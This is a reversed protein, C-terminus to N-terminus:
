QNLRGVTSIRSLEVTGTTILAVKHLGTISERYTGSLWQIGYGGYVALGDDTPGFSITLTRTIEFGYDPNDPNTNRHDPHYKHRFPNTPHLRPLVITGSVARAPGVGGQLALENGVFDYAPASIRRPRGNGALTLNPLRTADTVLAVHSDAAGGPDQGVPTLATSDVGADEPLPEETSAGTAQLVIVDKLLRVRGTADVHLLITFAMTDATPTIQGPSTSSATQVENVANLVVKGVWLGRSSTSRSLDLNDDGGGNDWFDGDWNLDYLGPVYARVGMVGAGMTASQGNGSDDFVELYNVESDYQGLAEPDFHNFSWYAALGAGGRFLQRLATQAIEAPTRAVTWVRVEDLKGKYHHRAPSATTGLGQRGTYLPGSAAAGLDVAPHFTEVAIGHHYFVVENAAELVTVALHQWIGDAVQAAPAVARAAPVGGLLLVPFGDADLALGWGNEEKMVVTRRREAQGPDVATVAEPCVWAEITLAAPAATNNEFVLDALRMGRCLTATAFPPPDGAPTLSVGVALTVAMPEVDAVEYEGNNAGADRVVILDGPQLGLPTFSGSLSVIRDLGPTNDEFILTDRVLRNWTLLASAPAVETGEATLTALPDVAPDSPRVVLREPRVVEIQVTRNNAGTESVTIQQGSALRLDSLAASLSRIADAKPNFVLSDATELYDDVGDFQLAWMGDRNPPQPGYIWEPLDPSAVTGHLTGTLDNGSNDAATHGIGDNLSWYGLLGSMGEPLQRNAFAYIEDSDRAYSWLRVEDLDGAYWGGATLAGRRGFVLGHHATDATVIAAEHDGAPAGNIFFAATNTAPDVLLAVHQWVNAALPRDSALAAAPDSDSIWYRLYGAADVALGWGADGQRLLTQFPNTSDPASGAFPGAPRLWLELTFALPQGSGDHREFYGNQGAPPDVSVWDGDGDFRLAYQPPLPEGFELPSDVRAWAPLDILLGDAKLHCPLLDRLRQLVINDFLHYPPAQRWRLETIANFRRFEFTQPVTSGGDLEYTQELPVGGVTARFTVQTGAGADAYLDGVDISLIRFAEGGDMRLITDANPIGNYLATSGPYDPMAAGKVALTDPGVRSNQVSFPDDAAGDPDITPDTSNECYYSPYRKIQNGAFALQEFQLTMLSDPKPVVEKADAAIGGDGEDFPWWGALGPEHGTLTRNRSQALQEPSRATSWARVEDLLGAFFAEATNASLPRAAFCLPLDDIGLPLAVGYNEADIAGDLMLTKVGADWIAAVHHWQGPTLVGSGQLLHVAGGGTRFRLRGNEDVLLEFAAAGKSILAAEAGAAPLADLNVWLELAFGTTFDFIEENIVLVYQSVGNLQLAYNGDLASGLLVARPEPLTTSGDYGNVRVSAPALDQLAGALANRSSDLASASAAGTPSEDFRWEGLLGNESGRLRRQRTAVLEAPGRALAWLRVTDLWGHLARGEKLRTDGDLVPANGLLLPEADPLLPGAWAASAALAGDIYLSKTMGDYVAAVHHWRLPELDTASVVDHYGSGTWTSFTLRGTNSYRSLAWARGKTAVTEWKTPFEGAAYEPFKVWAELTFGPATQLLAATSPTVADGEATLAATSSLVLVNFQGSARVAEQVEAVTYLGDNAASGRVAFVTGAAFGLAAFDGALTLIEDQRGLGEDSFVLDTLTTLCRVAGPASAVPVDAAATARLDARSPPAAGDPLVAPIQVAPVWAAAITVASGAADEDTVQDTLALLLRGGLVLGVSLLRGDNHASGQVRVVMGATFGASAFDGGTSVIAANPVTVFRLDSRTLSVGRGASGQFQLAYQEQASLPLIATAALLLGCVGVLRRSYKSLPLCFRNM